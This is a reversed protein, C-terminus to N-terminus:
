EILQNILIRFNSNSNKSRMLKKNRDFILADDYKRETLKFTITDGNRWIEAPEREGLGAVSNEYEGLLKTGKRRVTLAETTAFSKDM